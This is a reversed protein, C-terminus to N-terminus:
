RKESHWPCLGELRNNKVVMPVINRYLFRSDYRAHGSEKNLAAVEQVAKSNLDTWIYDYTKKCQDCKVHRVYVNGCNRCSEGNGTDFTPEGCCPCHKVTVKTIYRLLINRLRRYSNIDYMSVTIFGVKEDEYLASEAINQQNKDYLPMLVFGKEADCTRRLAEMGKISQARYQLENPDTLECFSPLLFVRHREFKSQHNVEVLKEYLAKTNQREIRSEANKTGKGKTKRHLGAFDSIEQNDLKRRWYIKKGDFTFPGFSEGAPIPSIIEDDVSIQRAKNEFITLLIKGNDIDVTVCVADKREFMNPETEDFGLSNLAFRCMLDCYRIYAKEAEDSTLHDDGTWERMETDEKILATRLPVWLQSAQHYNKDMLLINTQLLSGTVRRSKYNNKYMRSKKLEEFQRQLRRIRSLQKETFERQKTENSFSDFSDRGLIRSVCIQHSVDFGASDMNVTNAIIQDLQEELNNMERRKRRLYTIADDIMTKIVRNEYIQFDDEEVRSYLRSPKLGSATRALWDESHSALYPISEHGIRKVTEIPRIENISKLHSRPKACITKFAPYAKEIEDLMKQFDKMEPQPLAYVPIKRDLVAELKNGEVAIYKYYFEEYSLGTKLPIIGVSPRVSFTASYNDVSVITIDSEGAVRVNWGPLAKNAKDNIVVQLEEDSGNRLCYVPVPPRYPVGAKLEVTEFPTACLLRIM